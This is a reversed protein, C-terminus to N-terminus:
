NKKESKERIDGGISDGGKDGGKKGEGKLELTFLTKEPRFRDEGM